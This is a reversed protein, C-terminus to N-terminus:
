RRAFDETIYLNPGSHLVAVGVVNYNPDLINARHLPSNMLAQHASPIDQDLDVNEGQRDSPLEEHRFRTQMPPEGEFQHSLAAHQVMLETHKRAARTLRDDIALAQLGHQARSENILDVLQKEGAADFSPQQGSALVATVILAALLGGLNRRLDHM